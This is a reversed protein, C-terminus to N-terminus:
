RLAEVKTEVVGTIGRLACHVREELEEDTVPCLMEISVLLQAKRRHAQEEAATLGTALLVQRFLDTANVREEEGPGEHWGM